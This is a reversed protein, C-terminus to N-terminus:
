SKPVVIRAQKNLGVVAMLEAVLHNPSRIIIDRGAAKYPALRNVLQGASVFDLRSVGSFDLVPQEHAEIVQGLDEFRCGKLDGSLYHADDSSEPAMATAQVSPAMPEWSPPSLEFTIAYDVAREEFKEQTGHRQLLELLLRWASEHEAVGAVLRDNLRAMFAEPGLLTVALRMKRARNLLDALESAIEDDCGILKGCDVTAEEKQGIIKALETIPLAGETTLVGQLFVKRPGVSGAPQQAISSKQCWTPPSTECAEAYDAGLKEFAARDGSIQLLDFLLLWFRKGETGHYSRVFTELLSRAAGEQGNAYLVVVQEVCAQLPDVDQDVDIGMVSSDTFDRDFDDFSFDTEEVLPKIQSSSLNAAEAAAKPKAAVGATPASSKGSTFELDPLAQPLPRPAEDAVPKPLDPEPLPEAVRPRAAPREPMKNPQKKFFSFVM